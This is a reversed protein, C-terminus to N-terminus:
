DNRKAFGSDPKEEEEGGLVFEPEIIPGFNQPLGFPFTLIEFIGVATRQIARGVGHLVGWTAAAGVGHKNGIEEIGVPIEIWGLATNSAGRQLKRGASSLYDNGKEQTKAMLPGSSMLLTLVVAILIRVTKFSFM